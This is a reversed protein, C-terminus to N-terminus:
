LIILKKSWKTGESSQIQVFYIGKSLFPTSIEQTMDFLTRKFIFSGAANFISVTFNGPEKAIFKVGKSQTAPNPFIIVPDHPFYNVSEIASYIVQGSNLTIATRYSNIGEKLNIDTYTAITNKFDNTTFLTSFKGEKNKQFAIIKVEHISGLTAELYAEKEPLLTANFTQFYCATGQTSYNILQSRLGNRQKIKPLVAFYFSPHSSKKIISFSDKTVSVPQLYKEGLTFLQYNNETQPNWHLLFSDSCNFGVQVNTPSSVVFEDSIKNINLAPVLLKLKIIGAADPAKWRTAKSQLSINSQAVKWAGNNVSYQLVAKEQLNTQWHLVTSDGAKVVDSATPYHWQLTQADEVQFAIAFKQTPSVIKTGKVELVYKGAAPNAITIQEVTNLTDIKREAPAQLAVINPSPNLVWPLWRKKTASHILAADLDNVLAKQAAAEAAVDIWVLMVKLLSRNQPVLISFFKTEKNSIEGEFFQEKILNLHAAYANLSGYGSTYDIAKNEIDDASNLLLAKILAAPAEKGHKLKYAQQLLAATGSVIAAAGSSGDEGFAVIEPKVRGDYAPGKSSLPTVKNFSDVAGVTIINKAMKFSGTLNAMKPIDKYKGADSTAEGANGSSFIHLLQPNLFSSMDYARTDGGYFNEIATGYSHNQVTINNLKYISDSDPLLSNFDSSTLAAGWAAGKALTSTNGGGAVMTAMISAHSSQTTAELGSIFYRGKIDADGTDFRQEKLSVNITQGNINPHLHHLLNIKNVSLDLSGSTLEEIPKRQVDAFSISTDELLTFLTETKVRVHYVGAPAYYRMIHLENKRKKLIGTDKISLMLDISDALRNQHQLRQLKNSLIPETKIVKQATVQLSCWIFLLFFLTRNM